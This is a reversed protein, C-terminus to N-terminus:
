GVAVVGGEPIGVVFREFSAYCGTVVKFGLCTDDSLTASLYLLSVPVHCCLGVCVQICLCCDDPRLCPPVWGEYSLDALFHGSVVATPAVGAVFDCTAFTAVVWVFQEHM